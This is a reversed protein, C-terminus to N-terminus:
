TESIETGLVFIAGKGLANEINNYRSGGDIMDKMTATVMERTYSRANIRNLADTIQEATLDRSM